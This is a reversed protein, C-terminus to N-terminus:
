DKPAEPLWVVFRIQTADPSYDIRGGLVRVLNSVLYLGLGTGAQRRAHPSRYYKEFVKDAQPWGAAGPLNRVELRFGADQGQADAATPSLAVEVPSAPASYKLANEVLNSVVIFLLQPDSPATWTGLAQLQVREPQASALIASRVLATLDVPATQAKLQQDDSQATQLCREIVANMERIAHRIERTGTADADLRLNMTALPTKLEHALMALLKDQEERIKTEQLVLMQSRELAMAVDRQRMQQLHGRYQLILLMLFATVLGHAQVLYLPIEGGQSLGLGPFSAVALMLVLLVYFGIVM